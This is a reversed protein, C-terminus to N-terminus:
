ANTAEVKKGASLNIKRPVFLKPRIHVDPYKAHVLERLEYYCRATVDVDIIANHMGLVDPAHPFLKKYLEGLNPNKALGRMNHADVLKKSIDMTDIYKIIKLKEMLSKANVRSAELYLIRLDYLLNHGIMLDVDDLAEEFMKLVTTIDPLTKDFIIENPIHHIEQAEKESRRVLNLTKALDKDPYEKAILPAKETDDLQRIYYSQQSHLAGTLYYKCYALQVIRTLIFGTTETDFVIVKKLSSLVAHIGPSHKRTVNNFNRRNYTLKSSSM